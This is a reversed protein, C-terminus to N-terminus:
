RKEKHKRRREVRNWDVVDWWEKIYDGRRNRYDIYYAHEWVDLVLLPNLGQRIPNEANQTTVIQLKGDKDEVLWVWGSGFLSAAAASFEKKFQEVSGFDHIITSRLHPPIECLYPTMNEFYMTHNLVQAANNFIAGDARQVVEELPLNQYQSGVILRNLNDLYGRLHKGYHYEITEKSIVPELADAPYPLPPM